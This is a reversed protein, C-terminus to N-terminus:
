LPRSLTSDSSTAQAKMLALASLESPYATSSVAEDALVATGALTPVFGFAALAL